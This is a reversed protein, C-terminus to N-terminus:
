PIEWLTRAVAAVDSTRPRSKCSWTGRAPRDAVKRWGAAHLSTGPEPQQTYTVLRKWGLARAARWTAGYLMSCANRQGELVAVRTVELTTGDDLHRNVPRGVTAVGVLVGDAAVGVSYKHGQAPRHHRHHAAVFERAQAFSVPVLTLTGTM